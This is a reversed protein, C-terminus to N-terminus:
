LGNIMMEPLLARGMYNAFWAMAFSAGIILIWQIAGAGISSKKPTEGATSPFAFTSLSLLLAIVLAGPYVWWTPGKVAGSYVELLVITYATLVSLIRIGFM